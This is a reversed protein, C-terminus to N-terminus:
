FRYRIKAVITEVQKERWGDQLLEWPGDNTNDSSTFGGRSYVLFIDSLPALEYRYRIQLATDSLSFDSVPTASEVLHGGGDLDYGSVADANVAVWQFKVRVEQRASPYWDLGLDVVYRDSAFTALQATPSDWLLWEKFNQYLVRSTLTLSETLYYEPQVIIGFSLEETGSSETFATATYTFKGGRTSTYRATGWYQEPIAYLGNGRTIRDDWGPTQYGVEVDLERSSKFVMSRTLEGWLALRDGNTNEEYGYDLDWFSTLLASEQPYQLTYYREEGVLATQDNRLMFGMDNMDFEAGYHTVDIRHSWEDSPSYEWSVWGAYDRDDVSTEANVQNARQQIDSVLFQGSVRVSGPQWNLDVANVLATRELTPHDVYTLRHGLTLGGDSHQIRTSLFDRGKSLATDDEAVGFVGYDLTEGYHTFKAAVTIDTIGEDGADSAAGIRRTHVMRDNNPVLSSFMAQNETFFPRKESRFTEFATFNVVLDDSEVQGYDPNLAGTLQTSADPRWVIDLGVKWDEDGEELENTYSLYPFWDLTSAEVQGIKLPYWDQIFTPRQFSANPFAFRLSEDYVVRSFWLGITKQEGASRSIPAVTWPIHIESFWYEDNASTASYWTGDWDASWGDATMIGDQQSNSSGVTFDYGVLGAYDFDIGVVNRDAQIQADRPFRRHVRRVEPPQYNRFGIYIGKDNTIVRVQTAYQAPESTLPETTVFQDFVQADRWEPEDLVGDIAIEAQDQASALLALAVSMLARFTGLCARSSLRRCSSAVLGGVGQRGFPRPRRHANRLM